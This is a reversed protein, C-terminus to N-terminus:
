AQPQASVLRSALVIGAVAAFLGSLAYIVIKQRKVRLGSLRAAEENGGIAYMSRGIFTRGLILATILGMAIMV